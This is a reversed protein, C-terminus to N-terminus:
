ITRLRDLSVDSTSCQGRAALSSFYVFPNRWTAYPDKPSPGPKPRPKGADPAPLDGAKGRVPKGVGHVYAKWTRHGAAFQDAVTHTDSLYVCGSGIVQGMAAKEAPNIPTFVPCNTATQQTPGQGSILAIGNALPSGAVAYYNEILKGQHALTKNLYRDDSVPSFTQNFGHDALVILFM